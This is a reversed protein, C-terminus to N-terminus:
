LGPTWENSKWKLSGGPPPVSTGIANLSTSFLKRLFPLGTPSGSPNEKFTSGPPVIRSTLTVPMVSLPDLAPPTGSGVEHKRTASPRRPIVAIAFLRFVRIFLGM